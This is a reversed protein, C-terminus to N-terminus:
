RDNSDRGKKPRDFANRYRIVKILAGQHCGTWNDTYDKEVTLRVVQADDHWMIGTLADSVARVLKDADPKVTYHKRKWRKVSEPRPFLFAVELGYASTGDAVWPISELARQAETAVRNRWAGLGKQNNHTTVTRDLKKIYFARTSGEPEATGLVTFAMEQLPVLVESRNM